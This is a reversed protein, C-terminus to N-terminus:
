GPAPCLQPEGSKFDFWKGFTVRSKAEYDDRSIVEITSKMTLREPINVFNLSLDGGLSQQLTDYEGVRGGYGSTDIFRYQPLILTMHYTVEPANEAPKSPETQASCYVVALTLVVLLASYRKM